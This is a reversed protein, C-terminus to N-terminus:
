EVSNWYDGIEMIHIKVPESENDIFYVNNNQAYVPMDGWQVWKSDSGGTRTNLRTIVVSKGDKEYGHFTYILLEESNLSYVGSVMSKGETVRRLERFMAEIDRHAVRRKDQTVERYGDLELDISKALRGDFNFVYAKKEYAPVLYIHNDHVVLHSGGGGNTRYALNPFRVEVQDFEIKLEGDRDVGRVEPPHLTHTYLGVYLSDNLFDFTGTSLFELAAVHTVINDYSIYVGWPMGNTFFVEDTLFYPQQPTWNFGPYSDTADIRTILEGSTYDLLLFLKQHIDMIGIHTDNAILIRDTLFIDDDLEITRTQAVVMTSIFLSIWLLIIAIRM